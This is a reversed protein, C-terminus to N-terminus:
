IIIIIIVVVVLEDKIRLPRGCKTSRQINHPSSAMPTNTHYPVTTCSQNGACYSGALITATDIFLFEKVSYHAKSYSTECIKTQIKEHHHSYPNCDEPM